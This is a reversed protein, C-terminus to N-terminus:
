SEKSHRFVNTDDNPLKFITGVLERINEQRSLVFAKKDWCALIAFHIKQPDLNEFISKLDSLHYALISHVWIGQLFTSTENARFKDETSKFLSSADPIGRHEIKEILEKVRCKVELLVPTTQAPKILFDITKNGVGYGTVEYEVSPSGSLMTLPVAEVLFELHKSRDKLCEIYRILQSALLHQEMVLVARYLWEVPPCQDVGVLLRKSNPLTYPPGYEYRWIRRLACLFVPCNKLELPLLRFVREAQQPGHGLKEAIIEMAGLLHNTAIYLQQPITPKTM